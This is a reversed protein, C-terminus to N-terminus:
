WFIIYTLDTEIHIIFLLLIDWIFHIEDWFMKFYPTLSHPWSVSTPRDVGIFSSRKVLCKPITYPKQFHCTTDRFVQLDVTDHNSEISEQIRNVKPALINVTNRTPSFSLMADNGTFCDDINHVFLYCFELPFQNYSETNISQYKGHRQSLTNGIPM